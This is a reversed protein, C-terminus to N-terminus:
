HLKKGRFSVRAYHWSYILTQWYIDVMLEVNADKVKHLGFDLLRDISRFTIHTRYMEEFWDMFIEILGPVEDPPPVRTAALLSTATIKDFLIDNFRVKRNNDLFKPVCHTSNGSVAFHFYEERELDRGYNYPYIEWVFEM